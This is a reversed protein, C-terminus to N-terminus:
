EKGIGSKAEVATGEALNEKDSVIVKDGGKLGTVVETEPGNVYGARVRQRHARGNEVTWVYGGEGDTLISDSPVLITKQVLTAKGAAHVEMGPKLLMREAPPTPSLSVRVRVIRAGTRVETQPVAEGGIRVVKGAFERGVYAPATVVIAQGEFVPALDQEDVEASVWTERSEVVSFLAQTPSAMDGPDVFRRGVVGDFPSCVARESLNVVAQDAVAANQTIRAEAARADERLAQLKTRGSRVEAESAQAARVLAAAEDVKRRDAELGALEGEAVSLNAEASRVRAAAAAIQEKRAGQKLLALAARKANATADARVLSEEADDVARKATAGEAYLKKQREVETRARVLTAQAAILEEQGQAIEEPRNPRELDRLTAKAAEMDSRAAEVHAPLTTRSRAYMAAAQRERERASATNAMAQRERDAQADEAERLAARASEAQATAATVGARQAVVGAEESRRTLTALVQGARVRDGERVFVSEVRGVQPTTVNATRAEVYGVASWEAVLPGSKAKAVQLALPQSRQRVQWFILLAAIALAIFLWLYRRM